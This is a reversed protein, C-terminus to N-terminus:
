YPLYISFRNTNKSFITKKKKIQVCNGGEVLRDILVSVSNIPGTMEETRTFM